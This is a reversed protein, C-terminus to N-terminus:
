IRTCAREFPYENMEYDAKRAREIFKYMLVPDKVGPSSEVGECVDVGRPMAEKIARSVNAPNLGGGILVPRGGKLLRVTRWDLTEDGDGYGDLLVARCSGGRVRAKMLDDQTRVRVSRILMHEMGDGAELQVLDLGCYEVIRAIESAPTGTFVGVRALRAPTGRSIKRAQEVTVGRPGGSFVFGVGDAGFTAASVADELRTIGCIKIWM